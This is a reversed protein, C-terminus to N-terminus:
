VLIAMHSLLLCDQLQGPDWVTAQPSSFHHLSQPGDGSPTHELLFSHCSSTNPFSAPMTWLLRAGSATQQTGGM